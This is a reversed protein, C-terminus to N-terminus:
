ISWINRRRRNRKFLDYSLECELQESKSEGLRHYPLLHVPVDKSLQKLIFETPIGSIKRPITIARFSESCTCIVRKQFEHYARKINKHIDENPVGTLKMHM